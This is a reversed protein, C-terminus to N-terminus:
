KTVALTAEVAAKFVVEFDSPILGSNLDTCAQKVAKAIEIIRRAHYGITVLEEADTM